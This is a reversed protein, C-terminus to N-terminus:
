LIRRAKAAYRVKQSIDYFAQVESEEWGMEADPYHRLRDGFDEIMDYLVSIEVDSFEM